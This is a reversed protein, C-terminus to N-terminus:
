SECVEAPDRVARGRGVGFGEPFCVQLRELLREREREYNEPRANWSCM